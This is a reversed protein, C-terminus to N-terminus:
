YKQTVIINRIRGAIIKAGHETSAVIRIIADIGGDAGKPVDETDEIRVNHATFFEVSRWHGIANLLREFEDRQFRIGEERPTPVYVEEPQSKGLRGIWDVIIQLMVVESGAPPNNGRELHPSANAFPSALALMEWVM